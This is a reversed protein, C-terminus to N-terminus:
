ISGICANGDFVNKICADGISSTDRDDTDKGIYTDRTYTSGIATVKM